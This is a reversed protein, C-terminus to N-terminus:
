KGLRDPAPLECLETGYRALMEVYRQKTQHDGEQPLAAEGMEEFMKLGWAPSIIGVFRAPVQGRNAYGHVIDPPVHVFTGPGAAATENGLLFELEGEILYWVEHLGNGHVHPPPGAGPAVVCHVVGFTTAAEDVQTLVQAEEAGSALTRGGGPPLVVAERHEV